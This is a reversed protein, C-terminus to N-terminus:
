KGTEMKRILNLYSEADILTDEHQPSVAYRALKIAIFAFAGKQSFAVTQNNETACNELADMIRGVCVCQTEFDGYVSGREKQIDDIIKDM